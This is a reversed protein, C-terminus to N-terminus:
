TGFVSALLFVAHIERLYETLMLSASSLVTKGLPTWQNTRAGKRTDNWALWYM